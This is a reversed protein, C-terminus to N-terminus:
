NTLNKILLDIYGRIKIQSACDVIWDNGDASAGCGDMHTRLLKLENVAQTTQGMSVMMEIADLESLISTRNGKAKFASAPLANISVQIWEVDEGDSIGDDDSDADLPNTGNTVEFGDTLGDDDSDPDNPNTENPDLACNHNADEVGDLLSDDDSDSDLPKTPNSGLLECGDQLIDQDTDPNNPNTEDSDWAGNHNADESGDLLADNDSDAFLPKTPNSGNVETGDILGDNDTDAILPKTGHTNVEAGDTLGDNDSDPNNILTGLAKEQCDSL